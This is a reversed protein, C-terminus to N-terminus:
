VRMRRGWTPPLAEVSETRISIMGDRTSGRGLGRDLRTGIRASENAYKAGCM